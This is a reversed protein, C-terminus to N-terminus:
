RVFSSPVASPAIWGQQAFFQGLNYSLREALRQGEGAVGTRTAESHVGMAGSIAAPALSGGGAASAAGLGFGPKRGSNSDADYSQLLRVMRDPGTLYLAANAEVASKGAGFGIALRRTRNGENISEIQGQVVADGPQPVTGRSAREANLGMKRIEDVLTEAIASQVEAATKYKAGYQSGGGGSMEREIRPGIG